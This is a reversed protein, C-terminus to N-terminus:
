KVMLQINVGLRTIAPVLKINQGMEMGVGLGIVPVINLRKNLLLSYGYTVGAAVMDACRGFSGLSFSYSSYLLNAGMFHGYFPMRFWYRYEPSITIHRNYLTESLVWPSASASMSLGHHQSLAIDFSLNPSVTAWEVLNTSVAMRQAKAEGISLFGLAFVAMVSWFIKKYRQIFQMYRFGFFCFNM